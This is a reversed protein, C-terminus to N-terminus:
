EYSGSHRARSAFRSLRPKYVPKRSGFPARAWSSPLTARTGDSRSKKVLYEDREKGMAWGVVLRSFIDVIAALYLWGERTEIGTIDAVWTTNPANATFDRNLLHPAVPNRHQSDTTKMKRRRPKANIGREM